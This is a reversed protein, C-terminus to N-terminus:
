AAATIGLRREYAQRRRRYTRVKTAALKARRQWARELEAIRRYRLLKRDPPPPAERVPQRLAGTLWGRRIVEKIMRLELRAHRRGHEPLALHSVLHVLSHWGAEANVLFVGRRIWTYRRGSTLKVPGRWTRRTAFRYLKRAARLAEDPELPPITAPWAANVREYWERRTM